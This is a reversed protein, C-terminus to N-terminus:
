SDGGQADTRITDSSTEIENNARPINNIANRIRTWKACTWESGTAIDYIPCLGENVAHRKLKNNPVWNRCRRCTEKDTTPM